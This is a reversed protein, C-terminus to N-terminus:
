FVKLDPKQVLIRVQNDAQDSPRSRLDLIRGLVLALKTREIFIVAHIDVIEFDELTVPRV